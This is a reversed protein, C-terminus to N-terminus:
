ILVSPMLPMSPFLLFLPGENKLVRWKIPKVGGDATQPYRGFTLFDGKKATKLAKGSIEANSCSQTTIMILMVASIILLATMGTWKGNFPKHFDIEFFNQRNNM